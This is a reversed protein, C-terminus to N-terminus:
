VRITLAAIRNGELTIFYRLLIPSGEFTGSVRCTVVTESGQEAVQTVELTFAYAAWTEAIWQRIEESGRYTRGEDIVVAEPTFCAIAAGAQRANSAAIYGAITPTLTQSM